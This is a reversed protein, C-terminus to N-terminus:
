TNQWRSPKVCEFFTASSTKQPIALIGCTLLSRSLLFSMSATCSGVVLICAPAALGLGPGARRVAPPPCAMQSLM